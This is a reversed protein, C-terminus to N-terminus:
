FRVAKDSSKIAEILPAMNTGLSGKVMVVDGSRLEQLMVSVLGTSTETWAGRTNPPLADFLRRMLPGCAFVLDIAHAAIPEALAAHLAPGLDGLERMDGLVAVRRGGHAPPTCGLVGLAARMSAPNANYSEDILVIDAPSSDARHVRYSDRAGRGASPQVGALGELAETMGFPPSALAGVLSLVAAVGLSNVAIHQGPTGVRWSEGSSLTVESSDARLDISAPHVDAARSVGFTTIRAGVQRAAAELVEYHLSDRPLIAEGHPELGEFIEAKAQAVGIEGEAFNGVHVPLVNTVVAIHPRVLKTLPRIEGAHNMGIEIVAFTTAAPMRALTLPVGWHNNFSKEPAHTAGQPTLCAKLMATTGTKGASGTVAIVRAQPSLRARAAAAISRLGDLPDAVRILAGDGPCRVYSSSVLAASAGRAFAATVFAHGDRQDILAVFVEGAALTRTDISFGTIPDSIDGDAVGGVARVLDAAAWLPDRAPAPPSPM